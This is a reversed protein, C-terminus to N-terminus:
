FIVRGFSLEVSVILGTAEPCEQYNGLSVALSFSLKSPEDSYGWISCLIEHREDPRLFRCIQLFIEMENLLVEGDTKGYYDKSEKIWDMQVIVLRVEILRESEVVERVSSIEWFREM